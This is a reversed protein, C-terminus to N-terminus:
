RGRESAAAPGNVNQALWTTAANCSTTFTQPVGASFPSNYPICENAGGINLCLQGGAIQWTGAVTNSGPTLIRLSGGPDLYVINTVGNTTVQIPQGILEAGTAQALATTPIAAAAIAALRLFLGKTM